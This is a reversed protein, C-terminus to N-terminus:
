TSSNNTTQDMVENFALRIPLTSAVPHPGTGNAPYSQVVKPPTADGTSISVSPSKESEFGYKSVAVVSYKLTAREALGTDTFTTGANEGIKVDGRYVFYNEIKESGPNPTWSLQVVTPAALTATLGTPATPPPVVIDSCSAAILALVASIPPRLRMKVKGM